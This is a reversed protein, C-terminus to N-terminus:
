GAILVDSIATKDFRADGPETVADIRLQVIRAQVPPISITQLCRAGDVLPQHHVLGGVSWSVNVIRREQSYRDEGTAPDIKAYGNVLGLQAIPRREDLGFTLVAGTGDGDMRWATAPDGDLMNAPVYSTRNGAGDVGGM